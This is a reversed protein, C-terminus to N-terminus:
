QLTGVSATALLVKEKEREECRFGVRRSRWRRLACEAERLDQGQPGNDYGGSREGVVGSRRTKNTFM